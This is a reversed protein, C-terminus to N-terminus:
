DGFINSFIIIAVVFATCIGLTYLAVKLALAWSFMVGIVCLILIAIM